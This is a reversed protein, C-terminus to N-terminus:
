RLFPSKNKHPKSKGICRRWADRILTLEHHTAFQHYKNIHLHPAGPFFALSCVPCKVRNKKM